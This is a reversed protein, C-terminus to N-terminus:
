REPDIVVRMGLLTPKEAKRSQARRWIESWRERGVILELRDLLMGATVAVCAAEHIEREMAATVHLDGAEDLYPLSM